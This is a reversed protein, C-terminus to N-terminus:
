RDFEALRAVYRAVMDVELNVKMGPLLDRLMTVDLTHPILNMSFRADDVSNVTLSVGQVAISGKTAVFRAIEPPRDVALYFSGGPDGAVADFQAVTGVADVHGAVLHGGLRDSLRLSKEFNVRAGVTMPATCKLTEASVDFQLSRGAIGVVTLCCGNVAVSDGVAVDHLDLNGASVTLRVGDAKTEISTIAGVAEIIGTFM